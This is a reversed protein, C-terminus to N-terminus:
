ARAKIWDPTRENMVPQRQRDAVRARELAVQAVQLLAAKREDRQTLFGSVRAALDLYLAKGALPPLDELTVDSRSYRLTAEEQNTYLTEGQIDFPIPRGNLLDTPYSEGPGPPYEATLAPVAIAIPRACDSPVAYAYSWEDTRTNTVEALVAQKIAWRWNYGDLLEALCADYFRRCAKAETSSETDSTVAAAPVEALALNFLETKSYPM